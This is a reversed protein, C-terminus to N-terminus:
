VTTAVFFRGGIFIVNAFKRSASAPVITRSFDNMPLILIIVCRGTVM